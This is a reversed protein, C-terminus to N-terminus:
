HQEGTSCRETYRNVMQMDERFFQGNLVEARKLQIAPRKSNPQIFEKCIKSILGEASIHNVFIKGM